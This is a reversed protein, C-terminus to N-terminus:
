VISGVSYVFRLSFLGLYIDLTFYYDPLTRNGPTQSAIILNATLFLIIIFPLLSAPFCIITHSPEPFPLPVPPLVLFPCFHIPLSHISLSMSPISLLFQSLFHSLLTLFPLSQSSFHSPHTLLSPFISFKLECSM